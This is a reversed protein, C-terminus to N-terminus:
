GAGSAAANAALKAASNAGGGFLKTLSGIGGGGMFPAALNGVAGAVQAFVDWGSSAVEKSALDEMNQMISAHLDQNHQMLQADIGSETAYNKAGLDALGLAAVTSNPSVGATGLTQMLNAQEEAKQPAMSALFQKFIESQTGGLGEIFKNLDGGVGKGLIDQFQKQLDTMGKGTDGAVPVSAMSGPQGAGMPMPVSPFPSTGGGAGPVAGTPMYPNTVGTGPTTAGGLTSGPIKPASSVPSAGPKGIMSAPSTQNNGAPNSYPVMSNTAM